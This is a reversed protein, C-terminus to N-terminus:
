NSSARIRQKLPLDDSKMVKAKPDFFLYYNRLDQYLFYFSCSFRRSFNM